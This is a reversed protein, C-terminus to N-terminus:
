RMLRRKARSGPKPSTPSTPSADDGVRYFDFGPLVAVKQVPFVRRVNFYCAQGVIETFLAPWTEPPALQRHVNYARIEGRQGFGPARKGGHVIYDHVARFQLNTEPDFAAHENFDTSIKLVGRAIDARMKKEDTYPQGSQFVVRVKSSMRKYLKRIHRALLDWRWVEKPDLEPAADYAKAVSECFDTYDVKTLPNEETPSEAERIGRLKDANWVIMHKKGYSKELVIGDYGLSRVARIWDESDFQFLDGYLSVLADHLTNQHTYKKLIDTARVGEGWNSLFTEQNENTVMDFVERLQKLTPKKAPMLRFDKSPSFEVVYPGYSSAQDYDSTFYIGPGEDNLSSTTRDRDWKQDAFSTRPRRDGHYFVTM